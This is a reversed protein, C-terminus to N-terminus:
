ALARRLLALLDQDSPLKAAFPSDKLAAVMAGQVRAGRRARRLRARHPPAARGLRARRDRARLRVRRPAHRADAAATAECRPRVDPAVVAGEEACRRHATSRRAACRRGEAETTGGAGEAEGAPPAARWRTRGDPGRPAPPAQAGGRRVRADRSRRRRPRVARVARDWREALGVDEVQALVRAAAIAAPIEDLGVLADRKIRLALASTTLKRLAQEALQKAAAFEGAGLRAEAIVELLRVYEVSDPPALRLLRDLEAVSDAARGAARLEAARKVGKRYAQEFSERVPENVYRRDPEPPKPIEITDNVGRRHAARLVLMHACPGKFLKNRIYYDCNCEARVMRREVDLVVVVGFLKGRYTIRGQLSLGGDSTDARDIAVKAHHLMVAAEQERANSFRLKEVPLPDRTLERKRYVGRDLDYIARGCQM